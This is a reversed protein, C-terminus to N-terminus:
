DRVAVATRPIGQLDRKVEIMRLGRARILETVAEAQGVGFEFILRGGPALYERSAAVLRRITALGDPGGFLAAAPEHRVERQLTGREGEPVYPPNSVILDFRSGPPALALMDCEALSVRDAVAHRRANQGAVVLAAGSIDTALVRANPRAVAITV